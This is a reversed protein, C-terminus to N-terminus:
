GEKILQVLDAKTAKSDYELGKEDAIQKLDEKTKDELVEEKSELRKLEAIVPRGQKNKDSLLEQIREETPEYGERPYVTGFDYATRDDEKDEFYQLAVYEQKDM